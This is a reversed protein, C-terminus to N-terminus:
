NQEAIRKKGPASRHVPNIFTEIKKVKREYYIKKWGIFRDMGDYVQVYNYNAYKPVYPKQYQRIIM